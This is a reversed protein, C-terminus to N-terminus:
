VSEIATVVDGRKRVREAMARAMGACAELAEAHTGMLRSESEMRSTSNSPVLGDPIVTVVALFQRSGVEDTRCWIRFTAV